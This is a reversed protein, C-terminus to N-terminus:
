DIFGKIKLNEASCIMKKGDSLHVQYKGNVLEANSFIKGLVGSKTEVLMGANKNGNGSFRKCQEFEFELDISDKEKPIIIKEEILRAKYDENSLNQEKAEKYIQYASKKM